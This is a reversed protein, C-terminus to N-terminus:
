RRRRRPRARRSLEEASGMKFEVRDPTFGVLDALRPDNSYMKVIEQHLGSARQLREVEKV